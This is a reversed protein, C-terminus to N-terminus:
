QNIKRRNYFEIDLIKISTTRVKEEQTANLDDTNQNKNLGIMSGVENAFAMTNNIRDVFSPQEKTEKMMNDFHYRYIEAYESTFDTVKLRARYPKMQISHTEAFQIQETEAMERQYLEFPSSDDKKLMNKEAGKHEKTDAFYVDPAAIAKEMKQMTDLVITSKIELEPREMEASYIEGTSASYDTIIFRAALFLLMAAAIGTAYRFYTNLGIVKAEKKKLAEKNPHVIAMDPMLVTNSFADMESKLDPHANLFKQFIVEQEPNLNGELHDVMWEEYNNINIKM